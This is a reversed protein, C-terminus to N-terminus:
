QAVKGLIAVIVVLSNMVFLVPAGIGLANWLGENGTEYKKKICFDMWTSVIWMMILSCIVSLNVIVLLKM